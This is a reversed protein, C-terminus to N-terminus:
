DLVLNDGEIVVASSNGSQEGQFEVCRSTMYTYACAVPLLSYFNHLHESCLSSILILDFSLAQFSTHATSLYTDYENRQM